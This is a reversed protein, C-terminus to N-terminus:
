WDATRTCAAVTGSPGWDSWVTEGTALDVVRCSVSWGSWSVVQAGFTDGRQIDRQIVTYSGCETSHAGKPWTVSACGRSSVTVAVDGGITVRGTDARAPWAATGAM